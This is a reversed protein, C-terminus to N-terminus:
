RIISPNRFLGYLPGTSQQSLSERRIDVIRLLHSAMLIMECAETPDTIPVNRHSLPNKFYGVAGWYLFRLAQKESEVATKDTLPGTAPDFAVKMLEVGYSDNGLGSAERVYVEIEKFAIFVATDYDGRLFNAWIKDAIRPHVLKYPLINAQRYMEFDSQDQFERGKRSITYHDSGGRPSLVILGQRQLWSFAESIALAIQEQFEPPYQQSMTTCEYSSVPRNGEIKTIGYFLPWALEDSELSLVVQPDAVLSHLCYQLAPLTM